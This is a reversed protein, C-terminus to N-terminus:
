WVELEVVDLEESACARTKLTRILKNIGKRSVSLQHCQMNDAKM